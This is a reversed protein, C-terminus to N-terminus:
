KGKGEVYVRYRMVVWAQYVQPLAPDVQPLALVTFNTGTIKPLNLFRDWVIGAKAYAKNIAQEPSGAKATFKQFVARENPITPDQAQALISFVLISIMAMFCIWYGKRNM